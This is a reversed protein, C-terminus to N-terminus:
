LRRREYIMKRLEDWHNNNCRHEALNLLWDINELSVDAWYKLEKSIKIGPIREMYDKINRWQRDIAGSKRKFIEAIIKNDGSSDDGIKFESVSYLAVLLLCEDESWNKRNLSHKKKEKTKVRNARM